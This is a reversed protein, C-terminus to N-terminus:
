IFVHLLVVRYINIFGSIRVFTNVAREALLNSQNLQLSFLLFIINHPLQPMM